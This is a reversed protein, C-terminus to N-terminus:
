HSSVSFVTDAGPYNGTRVGREGSAKQVLAALEREMRPVKMVVPLRPEQDPHLIVLYMGSVPLLYETELIHRYTNLQLNYCQRNCSSLHELPPRQKSGRFGEEDIKKARKWDLIVLQDNADKCILDAQGSLELGCHFLNMEVRWPIFGLPKLFHEQFKLFLLFEPSHPESVEHGNLHCEIHWHLLTGRRSQIAGNREWLRKIQEVTLPAGDEGLYGRARAWGPSVNKLFADPDFGRECSHSFTTASWPVKIGDVYYTHTAEVFVCRSDRPTANLAQLRDEYLEKDPWRFSTDESIVDDSARWDCLAEVPVKKQSSKIWSVAHPRRGHIRFLEEFTLSTGAREGVLVLQARVPSRSREEEM